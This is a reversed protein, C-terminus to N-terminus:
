ASFFGSSGATRQGAARQDCRNSRKGLFWEPLKFFYVKWIGFYLMLQKENVIKSANYQSQLIATKITQVAEDYNQIEGM